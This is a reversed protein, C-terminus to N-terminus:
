DIYKDLCYEIANIMSNATKDSINESISYNLSLEILGREGLTNELYDYTCSCFERQGGSEEVCGEMFQGKFGNSNDLLEDRQDQIATKLNNDVPPIPTNNENNKNPSIIIVIAIIIVFAIM